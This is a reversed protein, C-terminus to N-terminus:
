FLSHVALMLGEEAEANGLLTNTNVESFATIARRLQAESYKQAQAVIKQLYYPNGNLEKVVEYPKKGQDLCRRAQLLPKLRSLFLGAYAFPAGKPNKKLDQTLLAMGQKRKGEMLLDLIAFAEAEMSPNVYKLLVEETVTGGPGVMDAAKSFENKLRFGNTGCLEILKLATRRNLNVQRLAAERQVMNCAREPELPDFPVMRAKANKMFWKYILDSKEEGEMEILLVTAPDTRLLTDDETFSEAMGKNWERLRLVRMSDFFPLMTCEYLLAEKDAPKIVQYNLERSVPDLLEMVHEVAMIRTLAEEGFLLYAGSITRANTERWFENETKMDKRDKKKEACM